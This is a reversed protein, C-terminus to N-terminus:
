GLAFDTVVEGGLHAGFGDHLAVRWDVRSLKLDIRGCHRFAPGDGDILGALDCRLRVVGNCRAGDDGRLHLRGVRILGRVLDLGLELRGDINLERVVARDGILRGGLDSKLGRNGLTAQAAVRVIFSRLTVGERFALRLVGVRIVAALPGDLDVLGSTFDGRGNRLGCGLAVDQVDWDERVVVVNVLRLLHLASDDYELAILGRGVGHLRSARVPSHVVLYLIGRLTRLEGEAVILVACRDSLLFNVAPLVRDVRVRTNNRGGRWCVGLRTVLFGDVDSHRGRVAGGRQHRDGGHHLQGVAPLGHRNNRRLRDVRTTRRGRRDVDLLRGLDIKSGLLRESDVRLTKLGGALVVFEAIRSVLHARRISVPDNAQIVLAVDDGGCRLSRLRAVLDVNRDDHGVLVARLVVGGRRDVDDVNGLTLNRELDLVLVVVGNRSAGVLDLDLALGARLLLGLVTLPLLGLRWNVFDDDDTRLRGLAGLVHGPLNRDRERSFNALVRLQLRTFGLNNLFTLVALLGESSLESSLTILSLYGLFLGGLLRDLPDDLVARAKIRALQHGLSLLWNRELGLDLKIGVQRGAFLDNVLLTFNTGLNLGRGLLNHVALRRAIRRHGSLPGLFRRRLLDADTGLSRTLGGLRNFSLNREAHLDLVVRGDRSALGLGNSLALWTLLSDGHGLLDGVGLWIAFGGHLLLDGLFRDILDDLDTNLRGLVALLGLPSNRQRIAGGHTHVRIQLRTLSANNLLAFVALLGKSRDETRNTVLRVNNLTFGGLFRDLLNNLVARLGLVGRHHGLGLLRHWKLGLDDKIVRQLRALLDDIHLALVTGLNNGGSLLNDVPLRRAIRGHGGLASLLRGVRYDSHTSLGLARVGGLGLYLNRELGLNLEIIGQRSAGLLGHLLALWALILDGRGLGDLVRLDRAGRGLGLADLLRDLLDDLDAGLTVGGGLGNLPSLAGRELNLNALVRIELGALGLNNLLALRALDLVGDRHSRIVTVDRRVVRSLGDALRRLLDDLDASRRGLGLQGILVSLLQRELGDDLGIRVELGALDNFVLCTGETLLFDGLDPLQLIALGYAVRLRSLVDGLLRRRTLQTNTALNYGLGNGLSM